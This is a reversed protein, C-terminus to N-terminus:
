NKLAAPGSLSTLLGDHTVVAAYIEGNANQCIYNVPADPVLDTNVAHTDRCTVDERVQLQVLREARLERATQHHGRRLHGSFALVAVGALVLVAAVHKM